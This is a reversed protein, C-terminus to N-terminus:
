YPVPLPLSHFLWHVITVTQKGAARLRCYFTQL